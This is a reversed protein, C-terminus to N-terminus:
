WRTTTIKTANDRDISCTTPGCDLDTVFSLKEVTSWAGYNLCEVNPWNRAAVREKLKEFNKPDPEWAYIKRYPKNGTHRIFEEVTDGNFAGVDMFVSGDDLVVIDPEFYITHRSKVGRGYNSNRTLKYNLVGVLVSRSLDDVLLEYVNELEGIHSKVFKEDTPKDDCIDVAGFYLVEYGNSVSSVRKSVNECNALAPIVYAESYRKCLDSFSVVPFGLYSAKQKKADDDCFCEISIGMKKFFSVTYYGIIGAGFLIVPKKTQRLCEIDELYKSSDFVLQEYLSM